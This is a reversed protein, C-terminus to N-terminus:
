NNGDFFCKSFYKYFLIEINEKISNTKCTPTINIEKKNINSNKETRDRNDRDSVYM